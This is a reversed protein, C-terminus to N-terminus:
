GVVEEVIGEYFMVKGSQNNVVHAAEKVEIERGDKTFWKSHFNRVVGEQLMKQHFEERPYEKFASFDEINKGIIDSMSEYGLMEVFRPNVMLFEGNPSTQYLGYQMHNFMYRLNQESEVLAEEAQKQDTIDRIIGEVAILNWQNDLVPTSHHEVWIEANDKTIWRLARPEDIKVRSRLDKIFKQRDAKYTLRFLLDQDHYFEDPTYGTITTVAPSIFEMKREPKIRYRYIIDRSHRILLDYHDESDRDAQRDSEQAHLLKQSLQYLFISTGAVLIIASFNQFRSLSRLDTVLMVTIISTVFIWLIGLVFYWLAVRTSRPDLEQNINFKQDAM